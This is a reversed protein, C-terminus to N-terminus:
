CSTSLRCYGKLRRHGGAPLHELAPCRPFDLASSRMDAAFIEFMETGPGGGELFEAITTAQANGSPDTFQAACAQADAPRNDGTRTMSHRVYM